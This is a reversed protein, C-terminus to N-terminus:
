LNWQGANKGNFNINFIDWFYVPLTLFSIFTMSESFIDGGQAQHNCVNPIGFM